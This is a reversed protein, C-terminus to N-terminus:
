YRGRWVLSLFFFVFFSILSYPGYTFFTILAMISSYITFPVVPVTFLDKISNFIVLNVLLLTEPIGSNLSFVHHLYLVVASFLIWDKRWFAEMLFLSLLPVYAGLSSDWFISVVGAAAGIM